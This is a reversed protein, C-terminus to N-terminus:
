PRRCCRHEATEDSASDGCSRLQHPIRPLTSLENAIPGTVLVPEFLTM